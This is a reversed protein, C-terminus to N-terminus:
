YPLGFSIFQTCIQDTGGALNIVLKDVVFANAAMIRRQSGFRKPGDNRM